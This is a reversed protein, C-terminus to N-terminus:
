KIEVACETVDDFVDFSVTLTGSSVTVGTPVVGFVNAYYDIRSTTLIAADTFTFTRVAGSDTYTTSDLVTPLQSEVYGEVYDVIGGATKVDGDEDYDSLQMLTEGDYEVAGSTEGFKDLVSKNSHEHKKSVADALNSETQTYTDLLAKNSHAHKKTVADALDSETQEYTDLLAKNSHEHKKSVADALNVETQEYTDLLEKNDHAHAKEVLPELVSGELYSLDLSIKDIVGQVNTSTGRPPDIGLNTAATEAELEDILGNFAPAVIEKAPADFEQKLATATIKPQNPLTTAGRSNLQSNTIKTFAM